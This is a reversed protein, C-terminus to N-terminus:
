IKPADKAIIEWYNMQNRAAIRAREQNHRDTQIASEVEFFAALNKILLCLLADRMAGSQPWLLLRPWDSNAPELFV